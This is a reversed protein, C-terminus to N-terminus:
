RVTLTGAWTHQAGAVAGSAAAPFGGWSSDAAMAPDIMAVGDVTSGASPAAGARGSGAHSSATSVATMASRFTMSAASTTSTNALVITRASNLVDDIIHTSSTDGSKRTVSANM